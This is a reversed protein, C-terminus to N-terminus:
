LLIEQFQRMKPCFFGEAKEQFDSQHGHQEIDERVEVCIEPELEFVVKERHCKRGVWRGRVVVCLIIQDIGPMEGYRLEGGSHKM